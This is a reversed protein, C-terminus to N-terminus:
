QVDGGTSDWYIVGALWYSYGAGGVGRISDFDMTMNQLVVNTSDVVRFAVQRSSGYGEGWDLTSSPKVIVTTKDAGNITLGTFNEINVPEDYTGAAVNITDGNSAADIAAQITCYPTGTTDNCSPDTNDVDSTAAWAPVAGFVSLMLAVLTLTTLALRFKKVNTRM